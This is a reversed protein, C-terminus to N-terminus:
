TVFESYLVVGAKLEISADVTTLVGRSDTIEIKLVAIGEQAPLNLVFEGKEGTNGTVAAKRDGVTITMRARAVPSMAQDFVHGYLIFSRSEPTPVPMETRILEAQIVPQFTEAAQLRSTAVRTEEADAGYKATVRLQELKRSAIQAQWIKALASIGASRLGNAEVPASALRTMVTSQLDAENLTSMPGKM